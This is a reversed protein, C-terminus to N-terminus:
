SVSDPDEKKAAEHAMRYRELAADLERMLRSVETAAVNAEALLRAHKEIKARIM